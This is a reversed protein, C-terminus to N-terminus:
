GHELDCAVGKYATTHSRGHGRTLFTRIITKHVINEVVTERIFRVFMETFVSIDVSSNRFM